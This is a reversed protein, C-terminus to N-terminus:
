DGRADGAEWFRGVSEPLPRHPSVYEMDSAPSGHHVAVVRGAHELRLESPLRALFEWTEDAFRAAKWGRTGV